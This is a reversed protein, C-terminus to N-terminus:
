KMKGKKKIEEIRKHDRGGGGFEREGVIEVSNDMDVLEREKKKFKLNDLSHYM